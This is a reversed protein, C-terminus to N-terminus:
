SSTKNANALELEQSRKEYGEIKRKPMALFYDVLNKVYSAIPTYEMGLEAKSRANELSSMWLGSFPSCHPLLGQRTLEERPVRLIKLPRHMLQALLELFEVVTLTEDQGINYACGKSLDNEAVRMIAQVVDGGYVHRV